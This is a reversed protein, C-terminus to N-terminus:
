KARPKSDLKVLRSMHHTESMRYPRPVLFLVNPHHTVICERYRETAKKMTSVCLEGKRNHNRINNHIWMYIQTMNEDKNM